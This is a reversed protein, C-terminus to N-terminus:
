FKFGITMIFKNLDFKTDAFTPSESWLQAQTQTEYEKYKYLTYRDQYDLYVYALDLFFNNNRFGFGGSYSTYDIFKLDGKYPTSYLGVGGRLAFPGVKAEGGFRFNHVKNYNLKLNENPDNLDDIDGRLKMKGYDLMEYDFSILGMQNFQISGSAIYKWPTVLQNKAERVDTTRFASYRGDAVPGDFFSEMSTHFESDLNYFTPSHVAFGLRLAPVPRFILGAKFNWGVGWLDYYTNFDFSKLNYVTNSADTETHFTSESYRLSQIGLTFGLYLKHSYNTGLSFAYEGIGGRIERKNSQSQGYSHDFSYDSHWWNDSYLTTDLAYTQFALWEYYTYFDDPYLPGNGGDNAYYVFEDLLSSSANPTKAIVNRNFDALRNYAFGFSTSVWGEDKNTNYTYVYGLNQINFKMAFDDTTYPRNNKSASSDMKASANNYSLSPTFTLESTRYIGLGAPNLSLSTMDGGLSGFASGMGMTRATGWPYQQSSRLMDQQQINQSWATLAFTLLVIQSIIYKKM